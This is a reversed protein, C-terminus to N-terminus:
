NALKILTKLRRAQIGSMDKDKQNKDGENKIVLPAEQAIKAFMKHSQITSIAEMLKAYYETNLQSPVQASSAAVAPVVQAKAKAKPTKKAQANDAKAKKLAYTRENILSAKAEDAEQESAGAEIKEKRLNEGEEQVTKEETKNLRWKSAM